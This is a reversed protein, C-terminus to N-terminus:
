EEQALYAALEDACAKWGIGMTAHFSDKRAGEARWKEVLARLGADRSQCRKLIRIEEELVRLPPVNVWGLMTAIVRVEHAYNRQEGQAPEATAARADSHLEEWDADTVPQRGHEPCPQPKECLRCQAPEAAPSALLADLGCTCTVGKPLLAWSGGLPNLACGVKHQVYDRLARESM